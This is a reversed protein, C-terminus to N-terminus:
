FSKRSAEGTKCHPLKHRQVTIIHCTELERISVNMWVTVNVLSLHCFNKFFATFLEIELGSIEMYELCSDSRHNCLRQHKQGRCHELNQGPYVHDKFFFNGYSKYGYLIHKKCSKWSIDEAKVAEFISAFAIKNVM